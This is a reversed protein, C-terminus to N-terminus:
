DQDALWWAGIEAFGSAGVVYHGEEVSGFFSSPVRKGRVTIGEKGGAYLDRGPGLPMLAVGGIRM